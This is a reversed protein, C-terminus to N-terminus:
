MLDDTLDIQITLWDLIEDASDATYIEDSTHADLIMLGDPHPSIALGYQACEALAMEMTTPDHHNM